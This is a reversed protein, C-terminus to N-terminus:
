TPSKTRWLTHGASQWAALGGKLVCINLYGRNIFQRAAMSSRQGNLCTILIPQDKPIDRISIDLNLRKADPIMHTAFKPNQVDIVLQKELERKAEGPALQLIPNMRKKKRLRATM